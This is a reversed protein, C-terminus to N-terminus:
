HYAWCSTYTYNVIILLNVSSGGLYSNSKWFTIKHSTIAKGKPNPTVKTIRSLTGLCAAWNSRHLAIKWPRILGGYWPNFTFCPAKTCTSYARLPVTAQYLLPVPTRVFPSAFEGQTTSLMHSCYFHKARMIRTLLRWVEKPWVKIRKAPGGYRVWRCCSWAYTEKPECGRWPKSAEQYRLASLHIMYRPLAVKM